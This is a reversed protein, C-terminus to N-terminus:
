SAASGAAPGPQAPEPLGAAATEMTVRPRALHRILCRRPCGARGRPSPDQRAIFAGPPLGAKRKRQRSAAAGPHTATIAGPGAPSFGRRQRPMAAPAPRAPAGPRGAGSVLAAQTQIQLLFGPPLLMWRSRWPRPLTLPAPATPSPPAPHAADRRVSRATHRRETDPSTTAAQAPGAM